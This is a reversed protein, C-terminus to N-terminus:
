SSELFFTLLLFCMKLFHLCTETQETPGKGAERRQEPKERGGAGEKRRLGEDQSEAMGDVNIACPVPCM